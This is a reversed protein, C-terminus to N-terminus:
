CLRKKKRYENKLLPIQLSTSSRRLKHHSIDNKSIFLDILCYPALGNVIKYMQKAKPKARQTELNEWGLQGLAETAPTDNFLNM